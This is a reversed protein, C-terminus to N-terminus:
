TAAGSATRNFFGCAWPRGDTPKRRKLVIFCIVHL